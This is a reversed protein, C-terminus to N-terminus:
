TDSEVLSLSAERVVDDGGCVVVGSYDKYRAEKALTAADDNPRTVKIEYFGNVSAFVRKVAATIEATADKAGVTSDIIFRVKPFHNEM